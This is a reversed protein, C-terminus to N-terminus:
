RRRNSVVGPIGYDTKKIFDYEGSEFKNEILEKNIAKVENNETLLYYKNLDAYENINYDNVTFIGVIGATKEEDQPLNTRILNFAFNEVLEEDTFLIKKMQMIYYYSDIGRMNSLNIKELLLDFKDQIKVEKINNTLTEYEKLLDDLSEEKNTEKIKYEKLIISNVHNLCKKFEEKTKNNKNVCTLGIVPQNLKSRVLDGGLITTVSDANVLFKGVRFGLEVHADGYAEGYMNKYNSEFNIGLDNLFKTYIVNFEFCVAKPNDLTINTIYDINQHKEVADGKQDVAYYEDDYSLTKCMKMYIYMSKELDNLDSPMNSIIEQELKKDLKVYKYKKDVTSLHKNLAEIDIIQGQKLLQYNSQISDTVIHNELIKNKELFTKVMYLFRDKPMDNITKIDDIECIKKFYEEKLNIFEFIALIKEKYKVNEIELEFDKDKNLIVYKDIYLAEKLTEFRDIVKKDDQLIKSIKKLGYFLNSKNYEISSEIDGNIISSLVFRDNTGNFYNLAYNYYKEDLLVRKLFEISLEEGKISLSKSAKLNKIDDLTTFLTYDKIKEFFPNSLIEEM